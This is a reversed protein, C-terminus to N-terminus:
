YRFLAYQLDGDGFHNNVPPIVILQTGEGIHKTLPSYFYCPPKHLGEEVYTTPVKMPNVHGPYANDVFGHLLHAPYFPFRKLNASSLKQNEIFYM